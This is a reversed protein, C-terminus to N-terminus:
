NGSTSKKEIKRFGYLSLAIICIGCLKYWSPVDDLILYALILQFIPKSLAFLEIAVTSSAKKVGIILLIHRCFALLAITWIYPNIFFHFDFTGKLPLGILGYMGCILCETGIAQM